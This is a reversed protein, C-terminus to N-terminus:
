GQRKFELDASPYKGALTMHLRSGVMYLRVNATYGTLIFHCGPNAPEDWVM